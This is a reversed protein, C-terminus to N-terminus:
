VAKVRSTLRYTHGWGGGGADYGVGGGGRTTDSGGGGGADYGVGGGGRRIRGGGGADYGGVLAIFGKINCSSASIRINNGVSPRVKRERADKGSQFLDAGRGLISRM